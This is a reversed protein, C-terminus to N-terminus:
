EVEGFVDTPSLSHQMVRVGQRAKATKPHKKRREREGHRVCQVKELYKVIDIM